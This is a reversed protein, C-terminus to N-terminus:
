VSRSKVALDQELRRLELDHQGKESQLRKLRTEAEQLVGHQMELERELSLVTQRLHTVQIEQTRLEKDTLEMNRRLEGIAKQIDPAM